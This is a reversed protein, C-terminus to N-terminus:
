KLAAHPSFRTIEPRAHELANLHKRVGALTNKYQPINPFDSVLKELNPVARRYAGAAAAEEGAGALLWGINHWSIALDYRNDSNAPHQLTLEELLTIATRYANEAPRCHERYALRCRLTVAMPMIGVSPPGTAIAIMGAALPPLTGKEGPAPVLSAELVNGYNNYAKALPAAVNPMNPRQKVMQGLLALAPRFAEEAERFRRTAKYLLGLDSYCGGLQYLYPLNNPEEQVLQDLLYRAARLAYEADDLKGTDMLLQGRARQCNALSYRYAAEHKAAAPMSALIARAKDWSQAAETQHGLRRQIVGLYVHVDATKLTLDTDDPTERSFQKYYELAKALFEQQVPESSPMYALWKAVQAYTEDVAQRALHAKAQERRKAQWILITSAALCAVLMLGLAVASRVMGPRRRCWKGVREMASARRARIPEQRLFRNLDDAFERATPYRGEAEKATAKLIITELDAPIRTDIRRPPRPDEYCVKRILEERDDDEFAPCLTVLEYLTIGLSYVDTRQDVLGHRARAQEPSMYRLTGVLDGTATLDNGDQLQRALGFDAVWLHGRSDLMLNAPKIDRHVIGLHHAHELAEAAQVGVRAAARFYDRSAAPADLLNPPACVMTSLAGTRQASPVPLVSPRLPTDTATPPFTASARLGDIVEALTPGDVFQMAYYHLGHEQGVAYIAVIHPHGLQAAAQAENKFRQLRRSDVAATPPLIKLAVRRSLSIQEAEYVIGMGGRAIERVIRFDSLPLARSAEDDDLAALRGSLTGATSGRVAHWVLDLADLCDALASAVRPYRAVFVTRDPAEGADALRRYEELAHTIMSADADTVPDSRASPNALAAGFGPQVAKM